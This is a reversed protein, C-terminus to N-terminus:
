RWPEFWSSANHPGSGSGLGTRACIPLQFEQLRHINELSSCRNTSRPRLLLVWKGTGDFTFSRDGRLDECNFAHNGYNGRRQSHGLCRESKNEVEQHGTGYLRRQYFESSVQDVGRHNSDRNSANHDIVGGRWSDGLFAWNCNCRCFVSLNRDCYFPVRSACIPLADHLSLTSIVTLVPSNFFLLSFLLLLL